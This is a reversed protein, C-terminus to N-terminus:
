NVDYDLSGTDRVGDLFSVLKRFIVGLAYIDEAWMPKRGTFPGGERNNLRAYIGRSLNWRRKHDKITNAESFNCLVVWPFMIKAEGKSVSPDGSPYPFHLHVNDLTINRHVIPVWGATLVSPHEPHMMHASVRGLEMIGGRSRGTLLSEVALGLEAMVHWIFSEPLPQRCNPNSLVELLNRLSKGNLYDYYLGVQEPQEDLPQGPARFIEYGCLRPFYTENPLIFETLPDNLVSFRIEPPVTGWYPRYRPGTTQWQGFESDPKTWNREWGNICKKVYNKNPSSVDQLLMSKYAPANPNLNGLYYFGDQHRALWKVLKPVNFPNDNENIPRVRPPLIKIGLQRWVAPT